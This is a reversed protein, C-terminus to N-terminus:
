RGGARAQDAAENAEAPSDFPGLGYHSLLRATTMTLQPLEAPDFWGVEVVETTDPRMATEPDVTATFVVDVQRIPSYVIANPTTPQLSQTDLHIATEERLERVAGAEPSERRKLHGGPLAWGSLGSQNVLLLRDSADRLLVVSGVTYNPTTARAIRRQAGFPLARFIRVLLRRLQTKM